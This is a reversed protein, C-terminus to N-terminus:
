LWACVAAAAALGLAVLIPGLVCLTRSGPGFEALLKRESQTSIFFPNSGKAARLSGDPAQQITCLIYADQDLPLATVEIRQRKLKATGGDSLMEGLRGVGSDAPKGARGERVRVINEAGFPLQEGPKVARHVVAPADIRAGAPDVEISGSADTM